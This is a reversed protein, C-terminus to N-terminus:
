GCGVDPPMVMDIVDNSPLVTVGINKMEKRGKKYLGSVADSVLVTRFDRESAEYITTRPCNPFNCGCIVVTSVKLKDLYDHLPTDYFAGWRPKYLAVENAGLPQIGGDLLYSCHLEVGATPLLEQVLQAGDTGPCVVQEGQEIGERRCLDVNSGDDRYLRVIHIVPLGQARYCELLEGIHPVIDLTGPVEAPADQLSFDRQVDITLLASKEWEPETYRSM